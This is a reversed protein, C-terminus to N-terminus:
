RGSRRLHQALVYLWNKWMRSAFACGHQFHPTHVSSVRQLNTDYVTHDTGTVATVSSIEHVAFLAAETKRATSPFKRM